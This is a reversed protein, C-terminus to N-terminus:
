LTFVETSSCACLHSLDGCKTYYTPVMVMAIASSLVVVIVVVIGLVLSRCEFRRRGWRCSFGDCNCTWLWLTTHHKGLTPPPRNTTAVVTSM